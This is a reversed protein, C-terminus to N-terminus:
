LYRMYPPLVIISSISRMDDSESAHITPKSSFHRFVNFHYIAINLDARGLVVDDTM